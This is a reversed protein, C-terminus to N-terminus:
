RNLIRELEERNSQRGGEDANPGFALEGHKLINEATSM